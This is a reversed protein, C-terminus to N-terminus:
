FHRFGWHSGLPRRTGGSLLWRGPSALVTGVPTLPLPACAAQAAALGEAPLAIVLEYDEGGVLAWEMAQDAEEAMRRVAPDIPLREAMLEWGLGPTLLDASVVLGDSCDTMALPLALDALALGAEVRAEPRRWRQLVTEPAESGRALAWLGAAAAGLSGTVALLWGPQAGTRLRPEHAEGTLALNVVIVPGRVTDGGVLAVQWHRCAAGLGAYFGQVWDDSLGPPLALSLVAHRPRGGMAAIDSVNVALAKWGVDAAPAWDRRFHTGEVLMDTTLLLREAPPVLVATDDGIGVVVGGGVRDLGAAAAIIDFENM